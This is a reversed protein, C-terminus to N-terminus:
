ELPIVSDNEGFIFLTPKKLACRDDSDRIIGYLSVGAKMDSHTLMLHHTVIGGWCFGVVAFRKANYQEKIYRLTANAE